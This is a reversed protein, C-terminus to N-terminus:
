WAAGNSVRHWSNTAVCTYIYTSDVQVQGTSCDATASAPTGLIVVSGAWVTTFVSGPGGLQYSLTTAPYAGSATFNIRATGGVYGTIVPSSSDGYWYTTGDGFGYRGITAVGGVSKSRVIGYFTGQIGSIPNGGFGIEGTRGASFPTSIVGSGTIDIAEINFLGKWGGNNDVDVNAQWVLPNGAADWRKWFVQTQSDADHITNEILLGPWAGAYSTKLWVAPVSSTGMDVTQIQSFTNGISAVYARIQDITARRTQGSQVVPAVETGGLATASPLQSIAVQARAPFVALALVAAALALNRKM